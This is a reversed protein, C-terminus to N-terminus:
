ECSPGDVSADVGVTGVYELAGIDVASLVNTVGAIDWRGGRSQDLFSEAELCGSGADIAPSGAQLSFNGNPADVFMPDSTIIGTGGAYGGEVIGYNVTSSGSGAHVVESVSTGVRDGWFITNLVNILSTVSHLAGGSFEASNGTFTGGTVMLTSGNDSYIAGGSALAEDTFRATGNAMNGAFTGNTVVASASSNSMAGGEYAVNGTFICDKVLPSAAYNDIAGGRYSGNGQFKCSEVVPSSSDNHMAGGSDSAANGQFACNTVVPSSPGENSMAGGAYQAENESFTCGTVRPSAQQNLMGAGNGFNVYNRTFMTNEIEPSANGNFMAGGGAAVNGQFICNAVLPSAGDNLMGGGVNHPATGSAYGGIVTFGDLTAATAGTVVHYSNDTDDGPIGIDGSLLAVNAAVNRQAVSSEGGSFGGYLAVQALLRFTATREDLPDTRASPRYTGAAVWIQVTACVAGNVLEGAVDLARQVTGVANTWATGTNSDSGTEAVRVVCDTWPSGGEGADGAAGATSGASGGAGAATSGSANGQGGTSAGGTGSAPMGGSSGSAGGAGSRGATGGTGVSGGGTGAGSRSGGVGLAGGSGGGRGTGSAGATAAGGGTASAGHSGGLNSRGGCAAILGVAGLWWGFTDRKM